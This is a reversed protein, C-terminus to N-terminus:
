LVGEADRFAILKKLRNFYLALSAACVTVYVYLPVHSLFASYVDQKFFAPLFNVLLWGAMVAYTSYRGKVHQLVYLYLVSFVSLSSFSLIMAELLNISQLLIFVVLILFSNLILSIVSFMLMRFAALQFVHYKCTMEVAFTDNTLANVLFLSAVTFYLVPSLTFIFSYIDETKVSSDLSFLGYILVGLALCVVFILETADRFLYRFGLQQYMENLFQIFTKPKSLGASVISHIHHDVQHEEPYDVFFNQKEM